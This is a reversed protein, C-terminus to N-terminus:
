RKHSYFETEGTRWSVEHVFAAWSHISLDSGPEGKLTAHDSLPLHSGNNPHALPEIHWRVAGTHDVAIVPRHEDLRGFSAAESAPDGTADLGDVDSLRVAPDDETVGLHVVVLDDGRVSDVIPYPFTVRGGGDLALTRNPEDM